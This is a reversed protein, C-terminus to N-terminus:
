SGGIGAFEFRELGVFPELREVIHQLVTTGCADASQKAVKAHM